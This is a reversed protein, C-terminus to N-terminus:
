NSSSDDAWGVFAGGELSATQGPPVGNANPLIVNPPVTVLGAGQGEVRAAAPYVVATALAARAIRRAQGAVREM